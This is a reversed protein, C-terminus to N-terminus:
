TMFSRKRFPLIDGCQESMLGFVFSLNSQISPSSSNSVAVDMKCDDDDNDDDDAVVVFISRREQIVWVM